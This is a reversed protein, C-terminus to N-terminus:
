NSRTGSFFKMKKDNRRYPFLLIRFIMQEGGGLKFREHKREFILLFTAVTKPFDQFHPQFPFMILDVISTKM